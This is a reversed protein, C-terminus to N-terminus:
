DDRDQSAGSDGTRGPGAKLKRLTSDLKRLAAVNRKWKGAEQGPIMAGYEGSQPINGTILTNVLITVDDAIVLHGVIAACGGIKCRKGIRTSGAIAACGAIISNEGIRVNHAIQIQNDLKVGDGITTDDMAGRDITTCAGIDVNNGIIVRGIQEIKQWREGEPAYGFGSAGIVAGPSVHCGDGLECLSGIVVNDEITTERGIKAGAGIRVGQGIRTQAGIEAGQGISSFHGIAVADGLLVDQEIQANPSIGAAQARVPSQFLKSIRAYALYPDDVLICNGPYIGNNERAIILAGATCSGADFGRRGRAVFSIETPGAKDVPRLGSVTFGADGVVEGEVRDALTQLTYGATDSERQDRGAGTGQNVPHEAM